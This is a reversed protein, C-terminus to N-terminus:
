RKGGPSSPKPGGAAAPAKAPESAPEAKKVTAAAPKAAQKGAAKDKGTDKDTDKNGGDKKGADKKDKSKEDQYVPQAPLMSKALLILLQRNRDIGALPQCLIHSFPDSAKNEVHVVKAVALGAPYISDIGSTVLVDGNRVDANTPVFRLDLSGSGGGYAVSRLGTRLVQVPIAQDKDTLLAVESTLPFVRTVQGVVGIDDIVPQGAEVGNRAGRDLVIKRTFPDRADFLIEAMVSKLPVRQNAGLLRRLQDNEAQLQRGQQLAQANALQQEHLLRNEKELAAVSTFYGGIMYAADRPMLAAQEIPYLATGVV